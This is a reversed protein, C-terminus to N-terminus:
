TAKEALDLRMFDLPTTVRVVGDPYDRKNRTVINAIGNGVACQYQLADEFDRYPHALALDVTRQDMSAVALLTCLERLKGVAYRQNKLKTLVYAVNAIAVPSALAAV